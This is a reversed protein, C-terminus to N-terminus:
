VVLLQSIAVKDFTKLLWIQTNVLMLKLSWQYTTELLQTKCSYNKRFGHQQTCTINRYNSLLLFTTSYFNAVFVLWPYPSITPHIVKKFIPIVHARKWDNPLKGQKLSAKYCSIVAPAISNSMDKLFRTPIRDLGPAKHPDLNQLLNIM